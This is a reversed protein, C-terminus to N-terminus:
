NPLRDGSQRQKQNAVFGIQAIGCVTGAELLMLSVALAASIFLRM